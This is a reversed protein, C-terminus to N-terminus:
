QIRVAAEAVMPVTGDPNAQPFIHALKFLPDYVGNIELQIYRATMPPDSPDTVPCVTVEPEQVVGDCEVWNTLEVKNQEVGAAAAAEAILFTWDIDDMDAEATLARSNALEITRHAAQQLELRESMGRGLDICGMLLVGLFPAIIGMEVLSVGREDNSLRQVLSALRM